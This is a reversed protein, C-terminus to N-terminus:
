KLLRRLYENRSLRLRAARADIAALVDEPIDRILVGSMPGASHHCLIDDASGRAGWRWVLGVMM